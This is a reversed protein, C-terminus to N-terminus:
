INHYNVGSYIDNFIVDNKITNYLTPQVRELNWVCYYIYFGAIYNCIPQYLEYFKKNQSNCHHVSQNLIYLIGGGPIIYFISVNRLYMYINLCVIAFKMYESEFDCLICENYYHYLYRIMIATTMIISMLKSYFISNDTDPRDIRMWWSCPMIICIHSFMMISFHSRTIIKNDTTRNSEIEEDKNYGVSMIKGDLYFMEQEIIPEPEPEPEPELEPEPEIIPEVTKVVKEIETNLCKKDFMVDDIKNYAIEEETYELGSNNEEEEPKINYIGDVTVTATIWEGTIPDKEEISPYEKLKNVTEENIYIMVSKSELEDENM